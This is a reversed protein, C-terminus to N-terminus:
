SENKKKKYTLVWLKQKTFKVIYFLLSANVQELTSEAIKSAHPINISDGNRNVLNAMSLLSEAADREM